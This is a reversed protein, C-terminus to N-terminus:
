QGPADQRQHAGAHDVGAPRTRTTGAMGAAALQQQRSRNRAASMEPSVDRSRAPSAASRAQADLRPVDAATEMRARRNDSRPRPRCIPLAPLSGERRRRTENRAAESRSAETRKPEDRESRSTENPSADGVGGVARMM